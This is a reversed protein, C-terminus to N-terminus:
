VCVFPVDLDVQEGVPGGLSGGVEDVEGALAIVVVDDKMPDDRAEDDLAAVALVALLRRELFGANAGASRAVLELVLRDGAVVVASRQGHGVRSRVGVAALEEDAVLLQHPPQRLVVRDESGHRLANIHDVRDRRATRSRSLSRDLGYRHCRDFHVVISLRAGTGTRAGQPRSGFTLLNEGANRVFSKAELAGLALTHTAAYCGAAGAGLDHTPLTLTTPAASTISARPAHCFANRSRCSAGEGPCCRLPEKPLRESNTGPLEVRRPQERATGARRQHRRGRPRSSASRRLLCRPGQTSRCSNWIASCSRPCM